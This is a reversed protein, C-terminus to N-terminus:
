AAEKPDSPSLEARLQGLYELMAQHGELARVRRALARIEHKLTTAASVREETTVALYYGGHERRSGVLPIGFEVVLTRAAEKIEREGLDLLPALERIPRANKMGRAQRLARLLKEAEIPLPWGPGRRGALVEAVLEDVEASHDNPDRDFQLLQQM